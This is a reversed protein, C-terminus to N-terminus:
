SLKALADLIKQQAQAQRLAKGAVGGKYANRSSKAKGEPTNAGTSRAWPKWRHILASQRARQETTWKRAM